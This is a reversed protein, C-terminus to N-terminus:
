SDQSSDTDGFYTGSHGVGSTPLTCDQGVGEKAKSIPLPSFSVRVGLNTYSSMYPNLILFGTPPVM